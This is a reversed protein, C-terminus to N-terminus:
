REWLKSLAEELQDLIYYIMAGVAHKLQIASLEWGENMWNDEGDLMLFRLQHLNAQFAHPVEVVTNAGDDLHGGDEILAEIRQDDLLQQGDQSIATM